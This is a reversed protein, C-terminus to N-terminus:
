DFYEQGNRADKTEAKDRKVNNGCEEADLEAFVDEDIWPLAEHVTTLGHGGAKDELEVPAAVADLRGTAVEPQSHVGVEALDAERGRVDIRAEVDSAGRSAESDEADDHVINDTGGVFVRQEKKGAEFLAEIGSELAFKRIDQTQVDCAVHRRTMYEEVLSSVDLLNSTGEAHFSRRRRAKRVIRGPRLKRLFVADIVGPLLWREWVTGQNTAQQIRTDSAGIDALAYRLHTTEGVGGTSRVPVAAKVEQAVEDRGLVRAKPETTRGKNQVHVAVRVPAALVRVLDILATRSRGKPSEEGVAWDREVRFEL